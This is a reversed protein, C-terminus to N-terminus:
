NIRKDLVKVISDTPMVSSNDAVIGTQSPRFLSDLAVKRDEDEKISGEKMLALYTMIMTKREEAELFLHKASSYNRSCFRISYTCLSLVIITATIPVPNIVGFLKEIDGSIIFNSKEMALLPLFFTAAINLFLGTLWINKEKKHIQQKESWYGVSGKLHALAKYAKETAKLQARSDQAEELISDRTKNKDRLVKKLLSSFTKKVKQNAHDIDNEITSKQEVFWSTAEELLNDLTIKQEKMLEAHALLSKKNSLTNLQIIIRNAENSAGYLQNVANNQATPRPFPKTIADFQNLLQKLRADSENRNPVISNLILMVTVDPQSHSRRVIENGILCNNFPVYFNSYVENFNTIHESVDKENTDHIVRLLRLLENYINFLHTSIHRIPDRNSYPPENLFLFDAQQKEIFNKLEEKNSFTKSKERTIKITYSM